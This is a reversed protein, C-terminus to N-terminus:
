KLLEKPFTWSLGYFSGYRLTNYNYFESIGSTIPFYFQAYLPLLLISNVTIYLISYFFTYYINKKNM